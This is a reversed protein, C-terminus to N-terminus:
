GDDDNAQTGDGLHELYLLFLDPFQDFVFTEEDRICSSDRWKVLMLIVVRQLTSM